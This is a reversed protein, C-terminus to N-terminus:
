WPLPAEEPKRQHAIMEDMDEVFREPLLLHTLAEYNAAYHALVGYRELVAVAEPVTTNHLRVFQEVCFSVFFSVERRTPSREEIDRSKTEDM